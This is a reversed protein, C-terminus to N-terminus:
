NLREITPNIELAEIRRLLSSLKADAIQGGVIPYLGGRTPTPKEPERTGEWQMSKEAVDELFAWASDVDKNIFEGGCM